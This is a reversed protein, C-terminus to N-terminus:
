FGAASGTSRDDPFTSPFKSFTIKRPYEDFSDPGSPIFFYPPTPIGLGKGVENMGDGLFGNEGGAAERTKPVVRDWEMKEKFFVVHGSILCESTFFAQLASTKRSSFLQGM